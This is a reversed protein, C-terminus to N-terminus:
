SPSRSSCLMGPLCVKKKPKKKKKKKAATEAGGAIAVVPGDAGDGSEESDDGKDEVVRSSSADLHLDGLSQELGVGNRAPPSSITAESM